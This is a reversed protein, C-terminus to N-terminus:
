NKCSKATTEGPSSCQHFPRVLSIAVLKQFLHDTLSRVMQSINQYTDRRLFVRCYIRFLHDKGTKPYLVSESDISLISLNGPLRGFQTSQFSKAQSYQNYGSSSFLFEASDSY